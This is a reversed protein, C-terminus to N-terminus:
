CFIVLCMLALCKSLLDTGMQAAAKLCLTLFEGGAVEVADTEILTILLVFLRVRALTEAQATSPKMVLQVPVSSLVDFSQLGQEACM